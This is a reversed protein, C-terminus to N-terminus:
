RYMQIPPKDEEALKHVKLKLDVIELQVLLIKRGYEHKVEVKKTDHEFLLDDIKVQYEKDLNQLDIKEQIKLKEVELTKREIGKDVKGMVNVTYWKYKSNNAIKEQPAVEEDLKKLELDNIELQVDLSKRRHEYEVEKKKTDFEFMLENVKVQYEKDLNQIAIQEEVELREVELSKEEIDSDNKEIDKMSSGSNANYANDNNESNDQKDEDESLDKKKAAQNSTKVGDKKGSSEDEDPPKTEEEPWSPDDEPSLTTTTGRQYDPNDAMIIYVDTKSRVKAIFINVNLM